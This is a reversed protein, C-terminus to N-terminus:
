TSFCCLVYIAYCTNPTASVGEYDAPPGGSEISQVLEFRHCNSNSTEINVNREELLIVQEKKEILLPRVSEEVSLAKLSPLV